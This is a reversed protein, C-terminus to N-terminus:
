TISETITSIIGNANSYARRDVYEPCQKDHNQLYNTYNEITDFVIAQVRTNPDPNTVTYSIFGPLSNLWPTITNPKDPNAERWFQVHDPKTSSITITVAM